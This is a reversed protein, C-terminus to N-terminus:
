TEGLAESLEVLQKILEACEKTTATAPNIAPLAAWPKATPTNGNIFRSPQVANPQGEFITTPPALIAGEYEWPQVEVDITSGKAGVPLVVGKNALAMPCRIKTGLSKGFIEVLTGAMGIATGEISLGTGQWKIQTGTRNSPLGGMWGGELRLNSSTITPDCVIAGAGTIEGKENRLDEWTCNNFSWQDGPNRIHHSQNALFVMDNFSHQVSYQKQEGKGIIGDTFGSIRGPGFQGDEAAVLIIGYDVPFIVGAEGTAQLNVDNFIPVKVFELNLAAAGVTEGLTKSDTYICLHELAFCIVKEANISWKQGPEAYLQLTTGARNAAGTFGGGGTIGSQGCIRIAQGEAKLEGEAEFFGKPLMLVGGFGEKPLGKEIAENLAKMNAKKAGGLTLGYQAAYTPQIGELRGILSYIESIAAAVTNSKAATQEGPISNDAYFPPTWTPM